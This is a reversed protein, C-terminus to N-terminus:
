SQRDRRVSLRTTTIPSELLFCPRPKDVHVHVGSPKNAQLEVTQKCPNRKAKALPGTVQRSHAEVCLLEGYM